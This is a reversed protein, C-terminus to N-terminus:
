QRNARYLYYEASYPVRTEEGMFSGPEAPATGGITNVRQIFSVRAFRGQNSSETAELLLWPIAGRFPACGDARVAVVKSGDAAEWTPGDYHTGVFGHYCPDAYLEAEPAVFEWAAGTWRYVQFGLAYLHATVRHGAPAAIAECVPPLVPPRRHHASLDAGNM